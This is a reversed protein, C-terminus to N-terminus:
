IGAERARRVLLDVLLPSEGALPCFRARGGAKAWASEAVITEIDGGPGAHRGPSFFMLSVLIERDVDPDLLELAAGLLPENFDYDAGERREMSCALVGGVRGALLKEMQAAVRDRCRTVERAPSGHDVLLVKTSSSLAGRELEAAALNGLLTAVMVDEESALDVLPKAVRLFSLDDGAVERSVQPLYDVIAGSPGFFLPVVLVGEVGDALAGKLYRRWTLAGEGGLREPEIKSSHLLSVPDVARGLRQGLEIAIRRLNLTAAPQLSGNDLLAIREATKLIERLGM